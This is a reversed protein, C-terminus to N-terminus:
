RAMPHSSTVRRLSAKWGSAGNTKPCTSSPRKWAPRTTARVTSTHASGAPRTGTSTNMPRTSSQARYISPSALVAAGHATAKRSLSTSAPCARPASLLWPRRGCPSSSWKVRHCSTSAEDFTKWFARFQGSQKAKILFEITKDIEEKTMNGKDGYKIEGMAEMIMAADMIGISPINIIASKGKYAPDMIDAWSTIERGVLDPRIGLTDANYITPVMTLWQTPEKAFAKDEPKEVFGVTHPATGQAIESEPNLKGTIFLPVIKDYYKLKSVDMPQIVGAPFVKKLIWYEVDAIDYSDPQTVARQAAADSDMATMELTIGLDEKCKQAVANLNSVGTGFQRLTIPNQAWIHPFGTIAGSGAALGAAATGTKLLTRRTIGTKKETNETM